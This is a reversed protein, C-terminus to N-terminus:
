PALQLLLFAAAIAVGYPVGQQRIRSYSLLMGAVAVVGGLLATLLVFDAAQAPTLAVALAAMVKVDGGGAVRLCFLVFGVALILLPAYLAPRGNVLFGLAVACVLLGAVLPNSIRRFRIDSYCLWLLQLAMLATIATKLYDM